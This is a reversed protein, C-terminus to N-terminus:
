ASSRGSVILTGVIITSESSTGLNEVVDFVYRGTALTLLDARDISLYAEGDTPDADVVDVDILPASGRTATVKGSYTRGTVDLPNTIVVEEYGDSGRTITYGPDTGVPQPFYIACTEADANSTGRNVLWDFYAPADDYGFRSV